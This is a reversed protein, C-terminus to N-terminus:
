VWTTAQLYLQIPLDSIVLLLNHACECRSRLIRLNKEPVTVKKASAEELLKLAEVVMDRHTTSEIMLGYTTSDPVLGRKMMEGYQELAKQIDKAKVYMAVLSCYSQSSMELGFKGYLELVPLVDVETRGETYVSLYADLSASSPQYGDKLM